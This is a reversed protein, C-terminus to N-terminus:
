TSFLVDIWSIFLVRVHLLGPYQKSSRAPESPPRSTMPLAVIGYPCVKHFATEREKLRGALKSRSKEVMVGDGGGGGVKGSRGGPRRLLAGRTRPCKFSIYRHGKRVNGHTHTLQMKM